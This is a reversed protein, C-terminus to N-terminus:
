TRTRGDGRPQLTRGVVTAAMVVAVVALGPFVGTWWATGLYDRAGSLLAGWEPSPPAPGLGLFSLASGSVVATGTGITAL